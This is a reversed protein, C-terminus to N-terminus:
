LFAPWLIMFPLTYITINKFMDTIPARVTHATASLPTRQV